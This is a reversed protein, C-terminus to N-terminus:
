REAARNFAAEHVQWVRHPATQPIDSLVHCADYDCNSGLFAAVGFRVLGATV